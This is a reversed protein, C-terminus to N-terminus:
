GYEEDITVPGRVPDLNFPHDLAKETDRLTALLPMLMVGVPGLLVGQVFGSLFSQGRGNAILAGLGGWVMVWVGIIFVYVLFILGDLM